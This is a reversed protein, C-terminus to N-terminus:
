FNTNSSGALTLERKPQSKKEAMQKIKDGVSDLKMREEKAQGSLNSRDQMLVHHERERPIEGLVQDLQDRKVCASEAGEVVVAVKSLVKDTIRLVNRDELKSDAQYMHILAPIEQVKVMVYLM